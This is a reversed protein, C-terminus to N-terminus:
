LCDAALAAAAMPGITNQSLDLELMDPITTIAELIPALGMDTLNNDALNISQVYPLDRLSEALMVAMDDGMGSYMVVSIVIVTVVVSLLMCMMM